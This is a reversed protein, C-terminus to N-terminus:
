ETSEPAPIQRTPIENIAERVANGSSMFRSWDFGKEPELWKVSGLRVEIDATGDEWVVRTLETEMKKGTSTLFYIAM